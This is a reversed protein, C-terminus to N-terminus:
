RRTYRLDGVVFQYVKSKQGPYFAWWTPDFLMGEFEVWTHGIHGDSNRIWGLEKVHNVDRYYGRVVCYHHSIRLYDALAVSAYHCNGYFYGGVSDDEHWERRWRGWEGDIHNKKIHARLAALTPITIM